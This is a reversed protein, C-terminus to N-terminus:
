KRKTQPIWHYKSFTHRWRQLLVKSSEGWLKKMNCLDIMTVEREINYSYNTIVITSLKNFSKINSPLKSFWEMAQGGLIKPFLRMLYAMDHVLEMSLTYFQFLHDQPYSTRWIKTNEYKPSFTDLHCKSWLPASM